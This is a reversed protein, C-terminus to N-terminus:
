HEVCDSHLFSCKSENLSKTGRTSKCLLNDSTVTRTVMCTVMSKHFNQVIKILNTDLVLVNGSTNSFTTWYMKLLILVYNEIKWRM